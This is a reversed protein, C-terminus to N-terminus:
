SNPLTIIGNRDDLQLIRRLSSETVNVTVGDSLVDVPSHTNGDEITTVTFRKIQSVYITPNLTLAYWIHTANLFDVIEHFVPGDKVETKEM